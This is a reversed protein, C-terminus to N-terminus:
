RKRVVKGFDPPPEMSRTFAQQVVKWAPHTPWRSRNTDGNSVVCRLWGDPLGDPGGGVQGTAYAWLLPLRQSLEYADEIGHFLEEGDVEQLMEHLAERKFSFEVRWVHGDDECWGHSRWLDVFWDKGSKVLERSKDYIRCSLPSTGKKDRAFQFGTRQLGIAYDQTKQDFGLDMEAHGNRKRSRSVFDTGQDLAEVGDWGAIDACLDVSSIQLYLEDEFYENVLEQVEILAQLITQCSWLYASGLRVSTVGNWKGGSVYLTIDATKLMWPWQGAGAGNPCMCLTAGRFLWSTPIETHAEQAERKWKDLQVRLKIDVERKLPKGYDDTYFGNLVLTDIGANVIKTEGM